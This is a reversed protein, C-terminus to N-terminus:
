GEIPNPACGTGTGTRGTYFPHCQGCIEVKLKEMRRDRERDGGRGQDVVLSTDPDDGTCLYIEGFNSMPAAVVGQVRVVGEDTHFHTHLDRVELLLDQAATEAGRVDREDHM